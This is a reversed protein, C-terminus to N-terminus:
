RSYLSPIGRHIHPLMDANKENFVESYHVAGAKGCYVDNYEGCADHSRALTIFM